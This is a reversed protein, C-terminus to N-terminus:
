VLYQHDSFYRGTSRRSLSAHDILLHSMCAVFLKGWGVGREGEVVGKVRVPWQLVLALHRVAAREEAGTLSGLM